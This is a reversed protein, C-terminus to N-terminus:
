HSLPYTSSHMSLGVHIFPYYLAVSLQLSSYPSSHIHAHISQPHISVYAESYTEKLLAIYINSFFQSISVHTSPFIPPRIIYAVPVSLQLSPYVSSRFYYAPLSKHLLPYMSPPINPPISVFNNRLGVRAPAQTRTEGSDRRASAATPGSPTSM